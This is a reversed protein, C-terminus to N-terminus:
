GKKFGLAFGLAFSGYFPIGATIFAPTPPADMARGALAEFIQQFKQYNITIFGQFSLYQLAVFFLGLFILLLKVIKKAAYGVAFGVVTGFGLQTAASAIPDTSM